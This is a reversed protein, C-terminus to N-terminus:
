SGRSFARPTGAAVVLSPFDSRSAIAAPGVGNTATFTLFGGWFSLGSPSPCSQPHCSPPPHILRFRSPFRSITLLAVLKYLECVSLSYRLRAKEKDRPPAASPVVRNAAQPFGFDAIHKVLSVTLGM